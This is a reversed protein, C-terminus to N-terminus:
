LRRLRQLRQKAIFFIIQVLVAKFDSVGFAPLSSAGFMVDGGGISRAREGHSHLRSSGACCVSAGGAIHLRGDIGLEFRVRSAGSESGEAPPVASELAAVAMLLVPKM